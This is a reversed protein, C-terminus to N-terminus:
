RFCATLPIFIISKSQFNFGSTQSIVRAPKIRSLLLHMPLLRSSYSQKWASSVKSVKLFEETDIILQCNPSIQHQQTKKKTCLKELLRPAVALTLPVYGLKNFAAPSETHLHTLAGTIHGNVAPLRPHLTDQPKVSLKMTQISGRKKKKSLFHM